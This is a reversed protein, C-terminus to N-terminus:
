NMRGGVMVFKIKVAKNSYSGNVKYNIINTKRNM